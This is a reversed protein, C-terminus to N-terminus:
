VSEGGFVEAYLDAGFSTQLPVGVVLKFSRTGDDRRQARLLLTDPAAQNVLRRAADYLHTVLVVKIGRERLADVVQLLLESGERENTSAFSENSLLQAGPVIRDAIASMRLLEEDLKGGQLTADEERKYHTFVGLALEGAYAEAAVFLGAHLMVQALGMARLFTSKGGQNAGTVALLGKGDADLDNEVPARQLTLALTPDRMARVTLRRTGIPHFTPMCTAVGLVGLREHLNLCAVFFALEVRLLEFFGLVHETAQALANAVENIGRDVLESLMREGAEDRDALRFAYQPPAKRLLRALWGPRAANGAHLVYGTGANGPGLSASLLVGHRFRLTDLHDQVEAFYDDGIERQLTTFLTGFAESRFGSALTDAQQRLRRLMQMYTQLLEVAGHLNSRPYRGFMSLGFLHKKRSEIAEVVLAYLARLEPAHALADRLAAQRWAIIRADGEGTAALLVSSAVAHLFADSAAMAALLTDLELDQGVERWQGPPEAKLDIDRDPFLLHAKM